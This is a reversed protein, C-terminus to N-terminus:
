EAEIVKLFEAIKKTSELRAQKNGDYNGGLMYYENLTHGADPYKVHEYRYKFEKEKL